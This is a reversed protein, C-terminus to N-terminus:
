DNTANFAKIAENVSYEQWGGLLGDTALVLRNLAVAHALSPSGVSLGTLHHAARCTQDAASALYDVAITLVERADELNVGELEDGNSLLRTLYLHQGEVSALSDLVQGLAVAMSSHSKSLTRPPPDGRLAARGDQSGKPDAPTALRMSVNGRESQDVLEASGAPRRLYDRALITVWTVVSAVIDAAKSDGLPSRDLSGPFTWFALAADLDGVLAALIPDRRREDDSVRHDARQGEEANGAALCMLGAVSGTHAVLERTGPPAATFDDCKAVLGAIATHLARAHDTDLARAHDQLLGRLGTLLAAFGDVPAPAPLRRASAKPRSAASAPRAGFSAKAPNQAILSRDRVPRAM